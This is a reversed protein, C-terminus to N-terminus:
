IIIFKLSCLHIPLSVACRTNYVDVTLHNLYFFFHDSSSFIYSFPGCPPPPPLLVCLWCYPSFRTPPPRNLLSTPPRFFKFINYYYPFFFFFVRRRRGSSTSSSSSSSPFSLSLFFFLFSYVAAAACPVPICIPLLPFIISPCTTVLRVADTAGTFEHRACRDVVEEREREKLWERLYKKTQKFLLFLFNEKSDDDHTQTLKGDDFEVM